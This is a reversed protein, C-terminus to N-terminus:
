VLAFLHWICLCVCMNLLVHMYQLLLCVTVHFGIHSKYKCYKLGEKTDKKSISKFLFASSCKKIECRISIRHREWPGGPGAPGGPSATFFRNMNIDSEFSVSAWLVGKLSMDHKINLTQSSRWSHASWLSRSSVIYSKYAVDTAFPYSFWLCPYM